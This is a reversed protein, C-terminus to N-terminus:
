RPQLRGDPPSRKDYYSPSRSHSLQRTPNPYPERSPALNGVDDLPSLAGAACADVGDPEVVAVELTVGNCVRGGDSGLNGLVIVKNIGQLSM